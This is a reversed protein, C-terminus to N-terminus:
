LSGGICLTLFWVKEVGAARLARTCYEMTSGTTYIDDILLVRHIGEFCRRDALFAHALNKQREDRGLEKQPATSHYRILGGTNVSLGTRRGIGEALLQAQNFGRQRKKQRSLPIPVLQQVHLSGIWGGYFHMLARVYFDTFERRGGYKFAFVSRASYTDYLWLGHGAEFSKQRRMCDFCYEQQGSIVPKGCKKCMAGAIRRFRGYCASHIGSGKEGQKTLIEGCVPCLPPYLVSLWGSFIGSMNEMFDTSHGLFDTM